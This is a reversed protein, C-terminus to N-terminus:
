KELHKHEECQCPVFGYHLENAIQRETVQEVEKLFRQGCECKFRLKMTM